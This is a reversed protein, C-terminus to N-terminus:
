GVDWEVDGRPVEDRLGGYRGGARPIPVPAPPPRRPRVPTRPPARRNHYDASLWEDRWEESGSGPPVSENRRARATTLPPPSLPPVPAPAVGPPEAPPTPDQRSRTRTGLRRGVLWVGPTPPGSGSTGVPKWARGAEEQLGSVVNTLSKTEARAIDLDKQARAAVGSIRAM